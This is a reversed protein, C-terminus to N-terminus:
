KRRGIVPVNDEKAQRMTRQFNLLLTVVGLCLTVLAAQAGIDLSVGFMAMLSAAITVLATITTKYGNM